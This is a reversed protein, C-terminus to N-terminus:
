GFIGLAAMKQAVDTGVKDAFKMKATLNGTTTAEANQQVQVMPNYSSVDILRPNLLTGKAVDFGEAHFKVVKADKDFYQTVGAIPQEYKLMLTRGVTLDEESGFGGPIYFEAIEGKALCKVHNVPSGEDNVTPRVNIIEGGQLGAIPLPKNIKVNSGNDNGDDNRVADLQATLQILDAELADTREAIQENAAIAAILEQENM